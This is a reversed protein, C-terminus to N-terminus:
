MDGKTNIKQALIGVLELINVSERGFYESTYETVLGTENHGEIKYYYKFITIENDNLVKQIEQKFNEIDEKSFQEGLLGRAVEDSNRKQLIVVFRQQREM